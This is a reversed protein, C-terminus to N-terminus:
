FRHVVCLYLIICHTHNAGLLKSGRHTCINFNLHTFVGADYKLHQHCLMTIFKWWPHQNDAMMVTTVNWNNMKVICTARNRGAVLCNTLMSM